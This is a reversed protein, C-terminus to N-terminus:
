QPYVDTLLGVMEVSSWTLQVYGSDAGRALWKCLGTLVGPYDVAGEAFGLNKFVYDYDTAVPLRGLRLKALSQLIKNNM